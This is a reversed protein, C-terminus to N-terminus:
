NEAESDSSLPRVDEYGAGSNGTTNNEAPHLEITPNKSSMQQQREREESSARLQRLLKALRPYLEQDLMSIVRDLDETGLQNNVEENTTVLSKNTEDLLKQVTECSFEEIKRTLSRYPVLQESSLLKEVMLVVLSGYQTYHVKELTWLLRTVFSISNLNNFNSNIAQIFIGSSASNGHVTHIFEAVPTEHSWRIIDNIHHIILWTIHEVDNMSVYVFDFVLCLAGRRTLEINPALCQETNGISVQRELLRGDKDNTAVINRNFTKERSESATIKKIFSRRLQDNFSINALNLSSPRNIHANRKFGTAAQGGNSDSTDEATESNDDGNAQIGNTEKMSIDGDEDVLNLSEIAKASQQAVYCQNCEYILLNRWFDRNCDVNNLLMMVNCWIITLDPYVLRIHYFMLECANLSFERSPDRAWRLLGAFSKPEKHDMKLEKKILESASRSLNFFLGSQFVHTLYLIYSSLQQTLFAVGADDSALKIPSSLQILIEALCLQAIHFLYGVFDEESMTDRIRHLFKEEKVQFTLIHITIIVISMWRQFAERSKLDGAPQKTSAGSSSTPAQRELLTEYIFNVPQFVEPSINEIIRRTLEIQKYDTMCVSRKSFMRPIISLLLQSLKKYKIESSNKRSELILISLLDYVQPNEIVDLLKKAVTEREPELIEFADKKSQEIPDLILLDGSPNTNSESNSRSPHSNQFHETRYIFLDEVLYRLLPVVYTNVDRENASALSLKARIDDLKHILSAVQFMPKSPGREYTLLGFLTFCSRLFLQIGDERGLFMLEGCNDLLRNISAILDNALPLKQYNVRLLLLYSMFHLIETQYHCFGKLNFQGMSDSVIPTFETIVKKLTESIQKIKPPVIQYPSTEFLSKVREEIRRRVKLARRSEFNLIALTRDSIPTIQSCTMSHYSSFTKYPQSVLHYYVGQLASCHSEQSSLMSSSQQTNSTSSEEEFWDNPDVQYIAIINIGFLSKLLQRACILSALSNMTTTVRLYSLIERTYEIAKNASMFELLSSINGLCTELLLYFREDQQNLNKKSSKFSQEMKKHLRSFLLRNSILTEHSIPPGEQQQNARNPMTFSESKEEIVFTMLRLLRVLHCFYTRFIEAIYPQKITVDAWEGERTNSVRIHHPKMRQHEYDSSVCEHCLAYLLQYSLILFTRYAELDEVVVDPETLNELYTLLVNLLTFSDCYESPRCDWCAPYQYVPYALSLEHLAKAVSTVSTKGKDLTDELHKRLLDIIYKLNISVNDVNDPAGSSAGPQGTHVPENYPNDYSQLISSTLFKHRNRMTTCEHFESSIMSDDNENLLFMHEDAQKLVVLRENALDSSLSVIPDSSRQMITRSGSNVNTIYLKPVVTVLATAAGARIRQHEDTLSAIFIDSVIKDQLSNILSGATPSKLKSWHQRELYYMTRYNLNAFLSLTEVKFPKFKSEGYLQILREFDQYEIIHLCHDSDFLTDICMRMSTVCTKFTDPHANEQHIITRLEVWLKRIRECEVSREICRPFRWSAEIYIGIINIMQNRVALDQHNKFDLITSMSDLISPQQRVIMSLCALAASQLIVKTDVKITENGDKFTILYNKAIVKTIGTITKLDIPFKLLIDRLTELSAIVTTTNSPDTQIYNISLKVISDYYLSAFRPIDKICQCFGVFKNSEIVISGHEIQLMGDLQTKLKTLTIQLQIESVVCISSISSAAIRKVQYSDSQLNRLLVDVLSNLYFRMEKSRRVYFDLYPMLHKLAVNLSRQISEDDSRRAIEILAKLLNQPDCGLEIPKVNRLLNPIRVLAATIARASGNVTLEDALVRIILEFHQYQFALIVCNLHDNFLSRQTSDDTDCYQILIELVPKLLQSIQPDSRLSRLLIKSAAEKVLEPQRHPTLKLINILRKLREMNSLRSPM